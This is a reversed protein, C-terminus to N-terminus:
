KPLLINAQGIGSNRESDFLEHYDEVYLRAIPTISKEDDINLEQIRVKFWKRNGTSSKLAYRENNEILESITKNRKNLVIVGQESKKDSHYVALKFEGQAQAELVSVRQQLRAITNELLQIENQQETDYVRRIRKIETQIRNIPESLQLPTIFQQKDLARLHDPNLPFNTNFADEDVVAFRGQQIEKRLYQEAILTDRIHPVLFKDIAVDWGFFGLLSLFVTVIVVPKTCIEIIKNKVNSIMM